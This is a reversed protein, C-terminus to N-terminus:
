TADGYGDRDRDRDADWDSRDSVRMVLGEM